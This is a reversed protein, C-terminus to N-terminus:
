LLIWTLPPACPGNKRAMLYSSDVTNSGATNSDVTNSDATNSDATSSDATNSDATNRWPFKSYLLIWGTNLTIPLVYGCM